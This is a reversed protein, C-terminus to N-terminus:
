SSPMYKRLIDPLYQQCAQSVETSLSQLDKAEEAFVLIEIKNGTNLQCPLIKSLEDVAHHDVELDAPHRSSSPKKFFVVKSLPNIHSGFDLRLADASFKHGPIKDNLVKRLDRVTYALADKKINPASESLIENINFRHVLPYLQRRSIRQLINRAPHNDFRSDYLLVHHIHDSLKSMANMNEQAEHLKFTKGDANVTYDDKAAVFADVFMLELVKVVQHQYARLHLDARVRFMDNITVAEKNRFGIVYDGTIPSKVLRCFTLLRRYDFSISINLQKGDRLFYDWKDVDIDNLKNNVIQYLYQKNPLRQGEGLILEAVLDINVNYRKFESELHNEKVLHKLMSVSCDEHRWKVDCDNLFHEWLHSFPGHGLDHCLGAIEVSLKEEPLIQVEPCNSRLAEVMQGALYAVGLSHEFRKGCAAPFVLYTTGLQKLNRLRQFQLTDIIKVCLPHLRIHGHVSDNFVKETMVETMVPTTLFKKNPFSTDGVKSCSHLRSEERGSSSSKAAM